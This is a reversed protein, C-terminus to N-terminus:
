PELRYNTITWSGSGQIIESGFEVGAVWWSPTWTTWRPTNAAAYALFDGLRGTVAIDGNAASLPTTAIFSLVPWVAHGDTGCGLYVDWTKSWVVANRAVPSAGLQEAPIRSCTKTSSGQLTLPGQNQRWPWVMIEAAPAVPGSALPDPKSATLWIDWALNMVDSDSGGARLAHVSTALAPKKALPAPLNPLTPDGPYVPVGYHWGGVIAPFAKVWVGDDPTKNRWDFEFVVGAADARIDQYSTADAHGLAAGWQNNLVGFRGWRVVEGDEGSAFVSAGVVALM